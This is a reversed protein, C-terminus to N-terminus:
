NRLKWATKVAGLSKPLRSVLLNSEIKLAVSHSRTDVGKTDVAKVEDIM